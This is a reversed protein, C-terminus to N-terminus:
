LRLLQKARKPDFSRKVCGRSDAKTLFVSVRRRRRRQVPFILWLSHIRTAGQLGRLQLRFKQQFHFICISSWRLDCHVSKNSFHLRIPVCCPCIAVISLLLLFILTARTCITLSLSVAFIKSFFCKTFVTKQCIMKWRACCSLTWAILHHNAELNIQTIKSIKIDFIKSLSGQLVRSEVSCIVALKKMKWCMKPKAWRGNHVSQPAHQHKSVEMSALQVKRTKPHSKYYHLTTYHSSSVNVELQM